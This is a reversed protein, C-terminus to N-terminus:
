RSGVPSACLGAPIPHRARCLYIARRRGAAAARGTEFGQCPLPFLCRAVGGTKLSALTAVPFPALRTGTALAGPRAGKGRAVLSAPRAATSTAPRLGPVVSGLGRPRVRLAPRRASASPALRHGAHRRRRNQVESRGLTPRYLSPEPGCRRGLRRAPASLEHADVCWAHRGFGGTIRSSSGRDLPALNAETGDFMGPARLPVSRRRGRAGPDGETSPSGPLCGVGPRDAASGVCDCFSGASPGQSRRCSASARGKLRPRSRRTAVSRECTPRRQCVAGLRTGM